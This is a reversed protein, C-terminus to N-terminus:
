WFMWGCHPTQGHVPLVELDRGESHPHVSLQPIM